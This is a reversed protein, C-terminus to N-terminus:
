KVPFNRINLRLCLVNRKKEVRKRFNLFEM